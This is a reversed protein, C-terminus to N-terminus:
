ERRMVAESTINWPTSKIFPILPSYNYTVTVKVPTDTAPSKAPPPTVEPEIIIDADTISTLLSDSIYNKVQQRISDNDADITVAYRAGERAANTVMAKTFFAFGLEIIALLILLILMISIALEIIVAGNKDRWSSLASHPSSIRKITM